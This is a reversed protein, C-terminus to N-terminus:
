EKVSGTINLIGITENLREVRFPISNGVEVVDEDYLWQEKNIDYKYNESLLDEPISANFVGYVLLGITNATTKNVIGSLIMGRKPQFAVVKAQVNFRLYPSEDVIASSQNIINIKSMSILVGHVEECYKMLQSYLSKKVGDMLNTLDSPLLCVEFIIETEVFPGEAEM